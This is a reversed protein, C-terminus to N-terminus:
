QEIGKKNLLIVLYTVAGFLGTIIGLPIENPSISRAVTDVITMFIGGFLMSIPLM